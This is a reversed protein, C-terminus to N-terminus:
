GKHLSFSITGTPCHPTGSEGALGEGSRSVTGKFAKVSTFEGDLKLHYYGGDIDGEGGHYSFARGKLRPVFEIRVPSSSGDDCKSTAPIAVYVSATTPGATVRGKVAITKGDVERYRLLVL